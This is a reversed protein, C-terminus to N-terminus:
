NMDSKTNNDNGCHKQRMLDFLLMSEMDMLKEKMKEMQDNLQDLLEIHSKSQKEVKKM